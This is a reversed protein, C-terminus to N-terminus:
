QLGKSKLFTTVNISYGSSAKYLGLRWAGQETQPLQRSPGLASVSSRQAEEKCVGTLSFLYWGKEMQSPFGQTMEVVLLIM